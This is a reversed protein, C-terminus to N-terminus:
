SVGSTSLSFFLVLCFRVGSSVIQVHHMNEFGSSFSVLRGVVPSILRDADKDVFAFQGGHFHEGFSSLYVLGSYDWSSIEAKDCHVDWYERKTDLELPDGTTACDPGQIRVLMAGGDDVLSNPELGHDHEMAHSARAKIRDLLM